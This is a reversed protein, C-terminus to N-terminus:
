STTLAIATIYVGGTHDEHSCLKSYGTNATFHVATACNITMNGEVIVGVNYTGGGDGDIFIGVAGTSGIGGIHNGVVNSQFANYMSIGYLEM